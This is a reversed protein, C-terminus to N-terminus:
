VTGNIPEEVFWGSPAHPTPGPHLGARAAEEPTVVRRWASIGKRIRAFVEVEDPRAASCVFFRGAPDRALVAHRRFFEQTREHRPDFLLHYDGWVTGAPDLEANWRMKFRFVGDNLYPPTGGLGVRAFGLARAREIAFWVRATQAGLAVWAPDGDLWGVRALHYAPGHLLCTGAAVCREGLFIQLFEADGSRVAAAIEHAPMVYGEAGHSRRVAPEHFRAHFEAAWEPDRLIAARFGRAQLRKVASRRDYPLAARCAENSPGLDVTLAVCRPVRLLAPRLDAPVDADPFVVLGHRRALALAVASRGRLHWRRPARALERNGLFLRAFHLQGIVDSASAFARGNAPDRVLFFSHQRRLTGAFRRLRRVVTSLGSLNASGNPTCTM